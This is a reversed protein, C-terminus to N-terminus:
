VLVNSKRDSISQLLVKSGAKKQPTLPDRLIDENSLCNYLSCFEGWIIGISYIDGLSFLHETNLTMGLLM